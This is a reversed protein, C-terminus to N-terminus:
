SGFSEHKHNNTCLKVNFSNLLASFYSVVCKQMTTLTWIIGNMDKISHWRHEATHLTTGIIWVLNNDCVVHLIACGNLLWPIYLTPYKSFKTEHFGSFISAIAPYPGLNVKCKTLSLDSAQYNQRQLKRNLSSVHFFSGKLVFCKLKAKWFSTTEHTRSYEHWSFDRRWVIEQEYLCLRAM